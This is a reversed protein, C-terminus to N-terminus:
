LSQTQSKPRYRDRRWDRSDAAAVIKNRMKIISWPGCRLLQKNSPTHFTLMSIKLPAFYKQIPDLQITTQDNTKAFLEFCDRWARSLQASNDLESELM